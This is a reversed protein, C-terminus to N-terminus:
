EDTTELTTPIHTKPDNIDHELKNQVQEDNEYGTFEANTVLQKSSLNDVNGLSFLEDTRPFAKFQQIHLGYIETYPSSKLTIWLGYAPIYLNTIPLTKYHM